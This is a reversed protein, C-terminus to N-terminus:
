GCGRKGWLCVNELHFVKDSLLGARGGVGEGRGVTFKLWGNIVRLTIFYVLPLGALRASDCGM